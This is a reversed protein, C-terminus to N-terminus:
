SPTPRNGSPPAAMRGTETITREWVRHDPGRRCCESRATRGASAGRLRSTAPRTVRLAAPFPKM